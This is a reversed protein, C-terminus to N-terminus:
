HVPPYLPVIPKITGFLGDQEGNSGATFYLTTAMYELNDAAPDVNFTLGWLGQIAIPTGSGDTLPGLYEGTFLNYANIWGDGFNGILLAQSFKGFHLPAIAMGWPSNLPGQSTFSRVLTGNPDFIDIYGFGAGAVDDHHQPDQKAFAVVLKDQFERISFPAFGLATLNTDGFSGTYAFNTDYVEVLNSRFNALYLAPGNSALAVAVGKYVANSTSNDIVLVANTGSSSNWASVTGDETVIFFQAPKKHAGSGILFGSTPNLALGSPAASNTSGAPPPVLISKHSPTGNGPAYTTVLGTGNDAVIVMNGAMVIGWPNILRADMHAAVHPLDADLNTIKYGPNPPTGNQSKPNSNPPPGDGWQAHSRSLLLFCFVLTGVIRTAPQLSYHIKM